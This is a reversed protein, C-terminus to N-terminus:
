DKKRTLDALTMRLRFLEREKEGIRALLWKMAAARVAPPLADDPRRYALVVNSM